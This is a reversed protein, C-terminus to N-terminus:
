KKLPQNKEDPLAGTTACAVVVISKGGPAIKIGAPLPIQQIRASSLAVPWIM